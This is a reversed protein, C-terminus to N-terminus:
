YMNIQAERWCDDKMNQYRRNLEDAYRRPLKCTTYFYKVGLNYCTDAWDDTYRKYANQLCEKYAQQVAERRNGAEAFAATTLSFFMAIALIWYYRGRKM